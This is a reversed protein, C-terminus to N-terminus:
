YKRGYFCFRLVAFQVFMGPGFGGGLAPHRYDVGDDVIGVRVGKATVGERQLRDVQTVVHPAYGGEGGVSGMKERIGVPAADLDNGHWLVEAEPRAVTEVPWVNKVGPSSALTHVLDNDSTDSPDFQYSAGRFLPSNFVVRPTDSLSAAQLDASISM